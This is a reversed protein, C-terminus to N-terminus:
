LSLKMTTVYSKLQEIKRTVEARIGDDTDAGDAVRRLLNGIEDLRRNTEEVFGGNKDFKDSPICAIKDLVLNLLRLTSDNWESGNAALLEAANQRFNDLSVLCERKYAAVAEHREQEAEMVRGGTSTMGFAVVGVVTLVLMGIYLINFDGEEKVFSSYVVTWLFLVVAYIDLVYSTAANKFTLLRTSSLIPINALLIIECVCTTVVNIYFLKTHEDFVLHFVIITCVIACLLVLASTIKNNM